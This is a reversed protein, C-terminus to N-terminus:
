CIKNGNWRVSDKSKKQSPSNSEDCNKINPDEKYAGANGTTSSSHKLNRGQATDNAMKHTSSWACPRSAFSKESDKSNLDAIKVTTNSKGEIFNNLFISFGGYNKTLQQLM